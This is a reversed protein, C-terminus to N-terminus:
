NVPALIEQVGKLDHVPMQCSFDKCIYISTKEKAPQLGQLLPIVKAQQELGHISTQCLATEGGVNRNIWDVIESSRKQTPDAKVVAIQCPDSFTQGYVYLLFNHFSANNTLISHISKVISEVYSLNEKVDIGYQALNYFLRAALANGSPEVGDSNDRPRIILDMNEEPTDYFGGGQRIFNEIIKARLENARKMNEIDFNARYLDIFACALAAYDSLNGAFRAEGQCFRRLLEGQQTRMNQWLFNAAKQAREGLEPLAFARAAQALASIMYANWATLIKEDRQPHVRKSRKALLAQRAQALINEWEQASYGLKALFQPRPQAEHLINVSEFNGDESVGWFHYIDQRQKGSLGVGQLVAELESFSWIYFKGEVGESDADQASYFAGEPSSMDRAIYDFLDLCWKRYREKRSLKYTEVMAWAFLANDYLMKEFHPVLWNHDTSYRALGGGVQDYIGGRKINDITNELIELLESDKNKRFVATLFLLQLSPPFKNPGNHLFGGKKHDYAQKLELSGKELHSWDILAKQDHGQESSYSQLRESDYNQKLFDYIAQASDALKKRDYQWAKSIAQLVQIFSPRNYLAQPPFYTGGTIPMAQPTIFMNLPWGGQEGMAHLAWMYIHDIDPREERDLKIAFFDKNLIEATIPDEFSEKEMVHCWHCTSYGISLLIPKDKAKAQEFVENGWPYWNVPNNAHQLLYPSKEHILANTYTKKEM